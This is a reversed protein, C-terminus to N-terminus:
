KISIKGEDSIVIRDGPKVQAPMEEKEIAFYKEEKDTCLFFKGDFSRVKLERM